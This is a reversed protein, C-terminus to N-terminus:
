SHRIVRLLDEGSGVLEVPQDVDGPLHARQAEDVICTPCDVPMLVWDAARAGVVLLEWPDRGAIHNAMMDDPGLYVDASGDGYEIRLFRQAPDEEVVYPELAARMRDGGGPAASHDRFRQLFVDYSVPHSQWSEGVNRQRDCM